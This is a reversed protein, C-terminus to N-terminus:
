ATPVSVERLVRFLVSPEVPKLLLATFGVETGRAEEIRSLFGTLAIIPTDEGAVQRLQRLLEFGNMDPLILDQLVLAPKEQELAALAARGDAAEVVRYGESQLTIRLMKRTLPNDEVVLIPRQTM